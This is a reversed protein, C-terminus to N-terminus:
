FGMRTMEHGPERRNQLRDCVISSAGWSVACGSPTAGENWDGDESCVVAVVGCAVPRRSVVPRLSVVLAGTSDAALAASEREIAAPVGALAKM